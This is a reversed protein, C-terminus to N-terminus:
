AVFKVGEVAHRQGEEVHEDRSIARRSATSFSSHDGGAKLVDLGEAGVYLEDQGVLFLGLITGGCVDVWFGLM